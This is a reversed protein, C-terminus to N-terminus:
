EEKVGESYITVENENQIGHEQDAKYPSCGPEIYEKYSQLYEEQFPKDYIDQDSLM